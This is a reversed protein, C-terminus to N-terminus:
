ALAVTPGLRAQLRALEAELDAVRAQASTLMRGQETLRKRSGVAPGRAARVPAESGELVEVAALAPMITSLDLRALTRPAALLEGRRPKRSSDHTRIAPFAVRALAGDSPAWVWGEGRGVRPLEGLILRSEARDAQGEIWGSVPDRDQSSTLTMMVVIDAQSLVDKHVM